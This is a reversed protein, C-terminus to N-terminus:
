IFYLFYDYSKQTSLIGGLRWRSFKELSTGSGDDFPHEHYISFKGISNKSQYDLLYTGLHNGVVNAIEGETGLEESTLAFFVNGFTKLDGKLKGYEPSTGGWQAFHQIQATLTNNENFKTILGLRKYHVRVDKVFRDDNLQYHAIGWDLSFTNSIKLPENAELILGPLPRANGSWLFNKNTASLGDAVEPRVKSGLTARLWNNEFQLYLEKRQINDTIVGDRGYVSAGANLNFNSFKYTAEAGGTVSLNTLEGIAYHTNTHFWFPNENASSIIATAELAGKIDFEQSFIMAPFLLFIIRLPKM